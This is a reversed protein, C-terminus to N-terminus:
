QKLVFCIGDYKNGKVPKGQGKADLLYPINFNGAVILPFADVTTAESVFRWHGKDEVNAMVRDYNPEGRKLTGYVFVLHNNSM